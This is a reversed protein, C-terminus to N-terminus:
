LSDIEAMYREDAEKGSDAQQNSKPVGLDCFIIQTLKKDTTDQWIQYVNNVCQNLKTNPNDELTPDVLRPDLGVKRGDGTIKLM